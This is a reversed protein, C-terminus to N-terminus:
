WPTLIINCLIIVFLRLYLTLSGRPVTISYQIIIERIWCLYIRDEQYSTRLLPNLLTFGFLIFCVVKPSHTLHIPPHQPILWQLSNRKWENGRKVTWQLPSQIGQVHLSVTAVIQHGPWRRSVSLHHWIFKFLSITVSVKVNNTTVAIWRRGQDM